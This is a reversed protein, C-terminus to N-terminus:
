DVDHFNVGKIRELTLQLCCPFTDTIEQVQLVTYQESGIVAVTNAELECAKPIRVVRDARRQQELAEFYRKSGVTRKGFRIGAEIPELEDNEAISYLDLVGDNFTQVKQRNMIQM